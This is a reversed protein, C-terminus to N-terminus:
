DFNLVIASISINSYYYNLALSKLMTSFTKINVDPLVDTRLCINYFIALKFTFSDNWDSYKAKKTYIKALNLLKKGNGISTTIIATPLNNESLPHNVLHAYEMLPQTHGAFIIYTASILGIDM